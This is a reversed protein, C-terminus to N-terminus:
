SLSEDRKNKQERGSKGEKSRQRMVDEKEIETQKEKTSMGEKEDDRGNESLM